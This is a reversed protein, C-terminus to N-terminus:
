HVVPPRLHAAATWPGFDSIAPRPDGTSNLRLLTDRLIQVAKPPHGNVAVIDSILEQSYFHTPTNSTTVGPDIAFKQPDAGDYVYRTQNELDVTLITPPAQGFVPRWVQAGSLLVM